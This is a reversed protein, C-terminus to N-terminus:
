QSCHRWQLYLIQTFSLDTSDVTMLGPGGQTLPLIRVESNINLMGDKGCPSWVESRVDFSDSKLYNQSFPGNITMTSSMQRTEGSFYYTAKCTGTAGRPLDAFGRYDAKFISFQWGHPYRLKINMQCNRRADTPMTNPGSQAIYQDYMLTLTTLDDSLAPAVSGAPCGSGAYNIPMAIEIEHGSPGSPPQQPLASAFALLATVLALQCQM